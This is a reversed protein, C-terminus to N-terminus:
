SKPHINGVYYGLWLFYLFLGWLLLASISEKFPFNKQLSSIHPNKSSYWVKWVQHSLEQIEQHAAWESLYSREWSTTGAFVENHVKFTYDTDLTFDEDSHAVVRWELSTPTTQESLQKYNYYYYLAKGTYWASCLLVVALFALWFRNKHM